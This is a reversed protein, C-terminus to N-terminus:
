LKIMDFLRPYFQIFLYILWYQVGAVSAQKFSGGALMEEVLRKLGMGLCGWKAFDKLLTILQSFTADLSADISDAFVFNMNCHLLVATIVVLRGYMKKNKKVHDIAREIFKYEENSLNRFESFSYTKCRKNLM